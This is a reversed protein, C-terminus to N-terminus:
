AGHLDEVYPMHERKLGADRAVAVYAPVLDNRRYQRALYGLLIATPAIHPYWEPLLQRIRMGDSLRSQEEITPARLLRRFVDLDDALVRPSVVALLGQGDGCTAGIEHLGTAARQAIDRLVEAAEAETEGYKYYQGGKHNRVLRSFACRESCMEAPVRAGPWVAFDFPPLFDFHLAVSVDFGLRYNGRGFSVYRLQPGIKAFYDKNSLEYGLGSLYDGAVRHRIRALKRADIM